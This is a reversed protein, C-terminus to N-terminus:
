RAEATPTRTLGHREFVRDVTGDALRLSLWGDVYDLWRWDGPLLYAKEQYSLNSAMTACLEPHRRSVLTVEIRDTIMVDARGEILAHFITRNDAHTVKRAQSLRGDVFAENTGGPNVIVRVGPRDIAALSAFDAARDCRAIPTKGGSHYGRSLSAARLRPLTRSVGSMAIDWHGGALDELLTPWSTAVLELAVGLGEALDRALDIDIGQYAAAPEPRHSFPAYDGTTGVRLVGADLVQRLRNPYVTLRRASAELATVLTRDLGAAVLPELEGTRLPEHRATELIATGLELLKPRLRNDLDPAAPVPEGAAWREFHQQQLAKAATMQAQMFDAVPGVELGLRLADRRAAALVAAERAPVEIPLERHWKHAAVAPMLQLREVILAALPSAAPAAAEGRPNAALALAFALALIILRASRPQAFPAM